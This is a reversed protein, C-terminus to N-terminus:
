NPSFNYYKNLFYMIVSSSLSMVIANYINNTCNYYRLISYSLIQVTFIVCTKVFESIIIEKKLAHKNCIKKGISFIINFTLIYIFLQLHEGRYKTLAYYLLLSHFIFEIAM